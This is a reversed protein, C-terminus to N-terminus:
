SRIHSTAVKTAKSQGLARVVARRAWALGVWLTAQHVGVVAEGAVGATADQLTVAALAVVAAPGGTPFAHLYHTM